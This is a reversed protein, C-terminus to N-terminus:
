IDEGAAKLACSALRMYDNPKDHNISGYMLVQRAFAILGAHSNVARVILRANANNIDGNPIRLEAIRCGEPAKVLIRDKVSVIRWPLPLPAAKVAQPKATKCFTGHPGGCPKACEPCGIGVAQPKTKNKM